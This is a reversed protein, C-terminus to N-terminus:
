GWNALCCREWQRRGSLIGWRCLFGWRWRCTSCRGRKACMRRRCISMSACLRCASGANKLAVRVRERAERVESSLLGVMQFCPLGKSIDVEVQVLYSNIGCVTGATITSFLLAGGKSEGAIQRYSERDPRICGSRCGTQRLSIIDRYRRVAGTQRGNM